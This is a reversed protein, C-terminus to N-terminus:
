SYFIFLLSTLKLNHDILQLKGDELELIHLAPGQVTKIFLIHHGGHLNLHTPVGSSNQSQSVCEDQPLNDHDGTMEALINLMHHPVAHVQLYSVICDLFHNHFM